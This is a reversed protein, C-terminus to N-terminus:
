AQVAPRRLLWINTAADKLVAESNEVAARMFEGVGENPLLLSRELWPEKVVQRYASRLVPWASSRVKARLQELLHTLARSPLKAFVVESESNSGDSDSTFKTWPENKLREDVVAPNTLKELAWWNNRRLASAIDSALSWEASNRPLCIQADSGLILRHSVKQSPFEDVLTHLFQLLGVATKSLKLTESTEPKATYVDLLYSFSSAINVPSNYVISLYVSKEVVQISFNDRRDTAVFGERLKGLMTFNHSMYFLSVIPYMRLLIMANSEKEQRESSSKPIYRGPLELNLIKETIFEWYEQQTEFSRLIAMLSWDVVGASQQSGNWALGIVVRLEETATQRLKLHPVRGAPAREWDRTSTRPAGRSNGLGRVGRARNQNGRGRGRMSPYQATELNYTFSSVIDWYDLLKRSSGLRTDLVAESSSPADYVRPQSFVLLNQGRSPTENGNVGPNKHVVAVAVACNERKRASASQYNFPRM